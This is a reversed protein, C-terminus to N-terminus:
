FGAGFTFQFEETRDFQSQNIPLAYSFTMPGMGSIWTFGIGYSSSLHNLSPTFCNAQTDRCYTSFSNGADVFASLQMSRSDEVFPIPLILETSFEMQVNGGIANDRTASTGESRHTLKGSECTSFVGGVITPTADDCLIYASGLGEGSDFVGNGNLDQWGSSATEYERSFTGRPGLTSKEFGRVSGFGGSYFNEFFPLEDMSGYGDGYGLSTKFRLVFDKTIPKFAQADYFVKYYQMDSGPATIDIRLNQSSGRTALIGRNLTFRSWGLNFKGTNFAHGYKDIFGEEGDYLMSDEIAFTPLAYEGSPSNFLDSRNVYNLQAFDHLYPSRRIEQPTYAGTTLTQHEFTLGFNLRSIESIPYGFRVGLGFTDVSYNAIAFNETDRTNYFANFGRSVGDPTYYPDTYGLNYSTTYSNKNVGFSVQKGTGLWNNQSVSVGLNIGSYQAYGVSASISGSPQEEVVYDVDILDDSGPVDRTDVNVQKFYGLRELRVKGQEIRANSASSSEMQRMERRIVEDSTKTNGSFGIRRVYVRKSPDVFFTLEVTKEEENKETLGEVEANTYGANGLLTTIYQSTADLKAQSYTDGERLLILRRVSSEPLVPDGGVDVKSVTYIDGENLNMTIYVDRRNPSISVQTSVVSFDLYGQDLYFSELREIDGTLKEKAYQDNSSFITTWKATTLEFLNILEKDSFIENGVFNIHRIKASKGEDILVEIDVMNNPLEIVKAEVSAGYRAQAIYSRELERAIGQLKQRQLIEGESIDNDSLVEELQETKMAKNGDIEISKIAPREQLIVILVNGERAMQVNSFFGTAFLDQINDRVGQSDITDGVRVTLAAFVPSASM